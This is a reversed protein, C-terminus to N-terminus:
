RKRLSFSKRKKKYRSLVIAILVGVVLIGVVLSSLVFYLDVPPNESIQFHASSTAVGNQYVVEVAVLYNGVPLNGTYFEKNFSKQGEVLITESESFILKGNYDKILYNLTVDVREDGEGMPILTIQTDLKNGLKITKDRDPVVVMADFLLEKTKVNLSVLIEKGGIFLSGAYVGPTQAAVFTVKIERTEGPQLTVEDYNFLAIDDLNEQSLSITKETAGNNTVKVIYQKTSKLVMDMVVDSVDTTIGAVAVAGGGGSGGGGGTGGSACVGCDSPCSSCTEPSECSGDGCVPDTYSVSEETSDAYIFVASRLEVTGSFGVDFLDGSGDVGVEDADLRSEYVSSISNKEKHGTTTDGAVVQLFNDFTVSDITGTYDLNVEYAYLDEAGSISVTATGDGNDDLSVGVASVLSVSFVLFLCMMVKKLNM